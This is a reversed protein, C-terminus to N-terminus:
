GTGVTSCFLGSGSGIDLFTKGELSESDLMASLSERARAIRGEDLVELFRSWNKGFEFRERQAIEIAHTSM